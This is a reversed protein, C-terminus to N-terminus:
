SLSALDICPSVSVTVIQLDKHPIKLIHLTAKSLFIIVNGQDPNKFISFSIYLTLSRIHIEKLDYGSMQFRITLDNKCDFITQPQLVPCSTRFIM